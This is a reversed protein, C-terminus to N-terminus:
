EVLLKKTTSGQATVLTVFYVGKALGSLPITHSSTQPPLEKHLVERGTADTMTLVGGVFLDGGMVCVVSGSAPNPLLLMSLGLSDAAMVSQWDSFLATFATDQTVRVTRPNEVVGDDWQLFSYHRNASATLVAVEGLGYVGGGYVRGRLTNNAEATVTFRDRFLYIEVGDSWDSYYEYKDDECLTRVYVVYHVGVELDSLLKETTACPIIQCSDPQTGALGLALEWGVQQPRAGPLVNASWPWYLRVRGVDELGVDEVVPVIRYVRPCPPYYPEPEEKSFIATVVTDQTITVTRPNERVGDDWQWFYAGSYAKARFRITDGECYSTDSGDNWYYGSADVDPPRVGSHIGRWRHLEAYGLNTDNSRVAVDYLPAAEFYATFSTDQTVLITRPNSTDGDNWRCFRYCSHATATITQYSGAPYYATSRVFGRSSDASVLEVYYQQEDLIVGYSGFYRRRGDMFENLKWPGDVESSSAGFVPYAYKDFQDVWMIPPVCLQYEIYRTPWNDYCPLQLYIDRESDYIVTDHRSNSNVSGWLWYEGMITYVTDFLAEYVYCYHKPLREDATQKMCMMKPQATDWRVSAVRVLWRDLSDGAQPLSENTDRVYIYLYEPLRVSDRVLYGPGYHDVMAWLGKVKIPRDAFQQIVDPYDTNWRTAVREGEDPFMNCAEPVYYWYCTDYWSSYYYNRQRCGCPLSDVTSPDPVPVQADVMVTQLVCMAM